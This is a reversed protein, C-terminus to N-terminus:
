YNALFRYKSPPVNMKRKFLRYIQKQNLGIIEAIELISLETENLFEKAKQLRMQENYNKYSAGTCQKFLRLFHSNSYNVKEAMEQSTYVNQINRNLHNVVSDIKHTKTLYEQCNCRIFRLSEDYKEWLSCEKEHEGIFIGKM